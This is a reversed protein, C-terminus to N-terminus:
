LQRLYKEINALDEYFPTDNIVTPTIARIADYCAKTAPALEDQIGLCDVAQAMALYLVSLVQYCNDIVQACLEASNTGMSVIDQNDNNNPISHVYNPMALTQCEATTSTATFQCAQLGYNLGLTGLNLFPPLIGNIRDHCLYNLQRESVMALRVMAIKMKDAELSIYDGHFNGGHYVNQTVPDVIPNDSAANLEEEIVQRSYALTDFIPGLIQPACRLSYYAQVKDKFVGNEEISEVKSKRSEVQYLVNERKQLRKSGASLRRMEEAIRIQGNHRRYENLPAAMLDDYSGAIENMWVAALTAHRLLNEAHLQNVSSIGTMVSTGNTCSLGERIHISIPKLGCEALVEATPRWEGKYHVKGEGILCLAIHALQVLDGSAGVSGHKPIYPYIGRNIFETLLLVLEPHVGSKCQAFSGVRALMSARVFFDGLPEGMGTAHSRIINYQLDRLHDDSVRWQAMPGFGTNIGYIVKDHAFQQLFKYCDEIGDLTAKDWELRGDRYLIDHVISLDLKMKECFVHM